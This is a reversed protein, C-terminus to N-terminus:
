RRRYRAAFVHGTGLRERDRAQKLVTDIYMERAQLLTAQMEESLQGLQERLADEALHPFRRELQRRASEVASLAEPVPFFNAALARLAQLAPGCPPVGTEHSSLYYAPIQQRLSLLGKDDRASSEQSDDVLFYIKPHRGLAGGEADVNFPHPGQELSLHSRLQAIGRYEDLDWPQFYLSHRVFTEVESSAEPNIFSYRTVRLHDYGEVRRVDAVIEAPSASQPFQHLLHVFVSGALDHGEDAVAVGVMVPQRAASTDWTMARGMRWSRPISRTGVVREFNSWSVIHHEPSWLRALAREESLALFAAAGSM